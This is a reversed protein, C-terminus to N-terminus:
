GKTFQKILTEHKPFMRILESQKGMEFDEFDFGPYVSCGVLSFSNNINPKAAFWTNQPITFQLVTSADLSKGLTVTSLRGDPNILYITIACGDYFHWTEDSKLKHFTSFQNGELLFYISTGFTRDSNYRSPLGDAKIFEASRYIEKFYGGEPHPTLNLKNIWNESTM